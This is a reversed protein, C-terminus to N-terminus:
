AGRGALMDEFKLNMMEAHINTPAATAEMLVTAANIAKPGPPLARMCELTDDIARKSRVLAAELEAIKTANSMETKGMGYSSGRAAVLAGCCGAPPETATPSGPRTFTAGTKLISSNATDKSFGLIEAQTALPWGCSYDTNDRFIYPGVLKPMKHKIHSM